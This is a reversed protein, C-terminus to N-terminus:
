VSDLKGGASASRPPKGLIGSFPSGLITIESKMSFSGIFKDFELITLFVYGSRSLSTM